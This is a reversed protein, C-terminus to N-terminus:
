DIKIVKITKVFDGKVARITLYYVQDATLVSLDLVIENAPLAGPSFVVGDVTPLEVKRGLVDFGIITFSETDLQGGNDSLIRIRLRDTFPNPYYIINYNNTVVSGIVAEDFRDPQEFGQFVFYAEFFNSDNYFIPDGINYSLNIKGNSYYGGQTSISYLPTNDSVVRQGFATGVSGLFLLTILWFVHRHRMILRNTNTTFSWM